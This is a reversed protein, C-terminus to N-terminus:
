DGVQALLADYDGAAIRADSLFIFNNHYRASRHAEFDEASQHKGPEFLAVSTLRGELLFFGRYGLDQVNNIITAIPLRNHRQEIEVILAPRSNKLTLRAGDIVETEHGEVDIKILDIDDFGFSDLTRTPIDIDRHTGPARMELSGSADHAVGKEDVPVHLQAVGASSSLAVAHISVSSKNVAWRDLLAACDPNPEFVEVRAGLNRLKFAYIGRNGGVDVVHAGPRVLLPLLAMEAEIEGRVMNYWYKVPVQLGPALHDRLFGKLGGRM